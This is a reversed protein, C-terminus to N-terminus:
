GVESLNVYTISGKTIYSSVKYKVFSPALVEAEGKGFSSLHQVPVAHNTTKLKFIVSKGYSSKAFSEAVKPNSSWSSIGKMDITSGSKLQKSWESYTNEDLHIGRYIEGKYARAKKLANDILKAKEMASPPHGARISSYGSGFYSALAFYTKEAEASSLGTEKMLMEIGQLQGVYDSALHDTKERDIRVSVAGGGRGSGGGRGGM